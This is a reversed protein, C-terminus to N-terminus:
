NEEGLTIQSLTKSKNIQYKSLWLEMDSSTEEGLMTAAKLLKLLFSCSTSGKELLLLSVITQVLQRHKETTEVDNSISGNEIKLAGRYDHDKRTVSL